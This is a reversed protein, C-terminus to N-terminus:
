IKVFYFLRKKCKIKRAFKRLIQWFNRLSTENVGFCFKRYTSKQIKDALKTRWNRSNRKGVIGTNQVLFLPFYPGFNVNRLTLLNSILSLQHFLRFLLNKVFEFKASGRLEGGLATVLIFLKRRGNKLM